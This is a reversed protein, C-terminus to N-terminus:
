VGLNQKRERQKVIADSNFVLSFHNMWANGKCYNNQIRLDQGMGTPPGLHALSGTHITPLSRQTSTKGDCSINDKYFHVFETSHLFCLHNNHGIERRIFHTLQKMAKDISSIIKGIRHTYFAAKKIKNRQNYTLNIWM